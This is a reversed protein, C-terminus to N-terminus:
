NTELLIKGILPCGLHYTKGTSSAAVINNEDGYSTITITTDDELTIHMTNGAIMMIYATDQVYSENYAATIESIEEKTFTRELKNGELDTLEISKVKTIAKEAEIAQAAEDSIKADSAPPTNPNPEGIAIGQNQDSIVNSGTINGPKVTQNPLSASSSACVVSFVLSFLTIATWIKLKM